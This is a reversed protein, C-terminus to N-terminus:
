SFAELKIPYRTMGNKEGLSPQQSLDKKTGYGM